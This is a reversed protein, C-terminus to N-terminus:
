DQDYLAIIYREFRDIDIDKNLYLNSVLRMLKDKAKYTLNIKIISRIDQEFYSLTLAIDLIHLIEALSIRKLEYLDIFSCIVKSQLHKSLLEAEKTYFSPLSKM